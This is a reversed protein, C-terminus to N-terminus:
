AVLAFLIELLEQLADVIIDGLAGGGGDDSQAVAPSTGAFLLGGLVFALHILRRRFRRM